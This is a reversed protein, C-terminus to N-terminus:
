GSPVLVVPRDARHLIKLAVGGVRLEAFGGLGRMGAVVLDVREDAAAQLLADAVNLGSLASVEVDLGAATLAEAYDDRIARELGRRWNDPSDAPTWEMFPEQVAAAVIRASGVDGVERVWDIAARSGASGDVAVLMSRVDLNVVGGIVALPLGAHHALWEATSGTRLLGPGVSSGVRGVVILDADERAAVALIGPRPDGPEIVTRVSGVDIEAATIWSELREREEGLLQEVRGPPLEADHPVFGTMVVLEAGSRSALRAGWRLANAAGPSGDVGVVIRHMM